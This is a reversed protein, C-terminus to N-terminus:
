NGWLETMSVKHDSQLWYDDGSDCDSLIIKQIGAVEPCISSSTESSNQKGCHYDLSMAAKDMRSPSCGWASSHKPEDQKVTANEGQQKYKSLLYMDIPGTTSRIVMKYQPSGMDADPEPVELYSAEPAKIAILTQNQFCPLCVIDEEM